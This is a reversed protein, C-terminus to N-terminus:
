NGKVPAAPSPGGATASDLLVFTTAVCQASITSATGPTDRTRIDINSINIIRSFKGVSDFFTALDHYTGDLQLSIPWEVHLQRTVTGAPKFSRITLNSGTALTQIRRLLDAVDKQEPLVAKLGDLRAELEAVQGKFRNLQLATTSGKTINAQMAALEQRRGDMEITAPVVYLQHFAAVAALAIGAFIAVQGYWPLKGLSLDM